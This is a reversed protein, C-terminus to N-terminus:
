VPKRSECQSVRRRQENPDNCASTCQIKRTQQQYIDCAMLCSQNWDKYVQRCSRQDIPPQKPEGANLGPVTAILIGSGAAIAVIKMM